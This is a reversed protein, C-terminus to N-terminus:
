SAIRWATANSCRMSRKVTGAQTAFSIAVQWQTPLQALFYSLRLYDYGFGPPLQILLVGLRDGLVTLGPTMRALWDEPAYLRRVHTLGRPAKM